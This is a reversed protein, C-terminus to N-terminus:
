EEDKRPRSLLPLAMRIMLLICYFLLRNDVTWYPLTMKYDLSPIQVDESLINFLYNKM